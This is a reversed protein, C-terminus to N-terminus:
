KSGKGAKAAKAPVAQAPAPMKFDERVIDVILFAMEWTPMDTSAKKGEVKKIAEIDTIINNMADIHPTFLDDTITTLQIQTQETINALAANIKDEDADPFTEKLKAARSQLAADFKAALIKKGHEPIEESMGRMEKLAADVVDPARKNLYAIQGNLDFERVIDGGVEKVQPVINKEFQTGLAKVLVDRKKTEQVLSVASNITVGVSTVLLVVLILVLSSRWIRIQRHLSRLEAIDAQIDPSEM